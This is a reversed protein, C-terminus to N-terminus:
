GDADRAFFSEIRDGLQSLSVNSKVWYGLIGLQTQPQEMFAKFRHVHIM